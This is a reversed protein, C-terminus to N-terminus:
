SGLLQHIFRRGRETWVLYTLSQLGGDSTRFAWTRNQAYGRRAYEAYLMYQGSQHYQIHKECLRRNLETASMEMGKAIQTTTYCGEADLVADTYKAKPMLEAIQEDRAELAKEMIRIARAMVMEDTEGELAAMYGGERRIAPLVESTVWHKFRRASELRSGLILAYLGSENIFLALQERGLKDIISRKLRDDEEVHRQIAHPAYAYGLAECVDKACFLVEGCEGQMTRVQGFEANEYIKIENM